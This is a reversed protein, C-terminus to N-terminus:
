TNSEWSWRHVLADNLVEDLAVRDLGGDSLPLPDLTKGIQHRRTGTQVDGMHRARVEGGGNRQPRLQPLFAQLRHWMDDRPPDLAQRDHIIEEFAESACS